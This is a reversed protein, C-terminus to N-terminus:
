GSNLTLRLPPERVCTGGYLYGPFAMIVFCLEGLVGFSLNPVFLSVVFAVYLNLSACLLTVSSGGKFSLSEKVNRPTISILRLIFLVFNNSQRVLDTQM